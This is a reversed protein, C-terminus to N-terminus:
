TSPIPAAAACHCARHRRRRSRRAQRRRRVDGTLDDRDVPSQRKSRVPRPCSSACRPCLLSTAPRIFSRDVCHLKSSRRAGRPRLSTVAVVREAGHAPLRNAPSPEEHGTPSSTARSWATPARPPARRSRSSRLTLEDVTHPAGVVGLAEALPAMEGVYRDAESTTLRRSGFRRFATLFMYIEACHVWLLLHPDNADYPVATTPSATSSDISLSSESSRPKPPERSGFTTASIFNATSLLRGLPDEQYRSHDAVGPWPSHTSCRSSSHDSVASSCRPSSATSSGRSATSTATRSMPITAALRRRSTSGLRVDSPPVRRSGAVRSPTAASISRCPKWSM